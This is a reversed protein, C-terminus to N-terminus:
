KVLIKKYISTISQCNKKYDFMRLNYNKKNYKAKYLKTIYKKLQIEDGQNIKFIKFRDIWDKNGIHKSSIIPLRFKMCEILCYGFTEWRSMFLGADFINYYNSVNDVHGIIKFNKNKKYKMFKDHGNGILVLTCNPLKLDQFVKIIIDFGKQHHFRGISGFVFDKSSINLKKKLKSKPVDIKPTNVWLYSKFLRGNFNKKIEKFQTNNSVIIADSNKYDKAKYNMHMTSIIRYKSSRKINKIADGLHTHIIDPNIKKILKNITYKKFFDSIEFTKIEKKLLRNLTLNKKSIIAFVNNKTKQYKVLDLVYKESGVFGKSLIIHIVVMKNKIKM